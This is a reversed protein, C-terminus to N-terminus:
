EYAQDMLQTALKKRADKLINRVKDKTIKKAAAIEAFTKQEGYFEAVVQQDEPSLKLLMQELENSLQQREMLNGGSQQVRNEARYIAQIEPSVHAPHIKGKTSFYAELTHEVCDNARPIHMTKFNQDLEKLLAPILEAASAQKGLRPLCYAVVLHSYRELLTGAAEEDRLKRIRTLLEKDTMNNLLLHM